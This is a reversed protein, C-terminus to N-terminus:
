DIWDEFKTKCGQSQLWPILKERFCEPCIDVNFKKGFSCEMDERGVKYRVEIEIESEAVDWVSSEWNGSKAVEGCLDCTPEVLVSMAEITQPIKEYKRM